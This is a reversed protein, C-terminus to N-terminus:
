KQDIIKEANNLNTFKEASLYNVLFSIRNQLVLIKFLVM